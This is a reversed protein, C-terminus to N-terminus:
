RRIGPRAVRRSVGNVSSPKHEARRGPPSASAPCPSYASRTGSECTLRAPSRCGRCTTWAPPTRRAAGVTDFVTLYRPRIDYAHSLTAQLRIEQPARPEGASVTEIPDLSAPGPTYTPM